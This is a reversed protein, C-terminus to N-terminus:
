RGSSRDECVGDRRSEIANDVRLRRPLEARSVIGAHEGADKGGGSDAARRSWAPFGCMLM